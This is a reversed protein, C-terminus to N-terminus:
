EQIQMAPLSTKKLLINRIVLYGSIGIDLFFITYWVKRIRELPTLHKHLIADLFNRLLQLYKLIGKADPIQELLVFESPSTIRTVADFNQRDKHNIDTLRIGHQDKSFANVLIRLHYAGALYQGMHNITKVIKIKILLLMSM